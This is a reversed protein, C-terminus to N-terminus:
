KVFSSYQRSPPINKVQAISLPPLSLRELWITLRALISAKIVSM